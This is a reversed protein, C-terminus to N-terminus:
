NIFLIKYGTFSKQYVSTIVEALDANMIFKNGKPHTSTYIM